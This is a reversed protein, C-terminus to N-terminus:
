KKPKGIDIFEALETVEPTEFKFKFTHYIIKWKWAQKNKMNNKSTKSNKRLKFILIEHHSTSISIRKKTEPVELEEETKREM